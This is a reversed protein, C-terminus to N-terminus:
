NHTLEYRFGFINETIKKDQSMRDKDVPLTLTSVTGQSHTSFSLCTFSSQLANESSVIVKPPALQAKLKKAILKLKKHSPLVSANELQSIYAQSVNLLQAFQAQTLERAHRAQVLSMALHIDYSRDLLSNYEESVPFMKQLSISDSMPPKM